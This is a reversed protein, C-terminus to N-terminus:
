LEQSLQKLNERIVESHPYRSQLQRLRHVISARSLANPGNADVEIQLLEMQERQTADLSDIKLKALWNKAAVYNGMEASAHAAGLAFDPTTPDAAHAQEYTRLAAAYDGQSLSIYGRLAPIEAIVPSCKSAEDLADVAEKWRQNQWYFVALDYRYEAFGPDLDVAERLREEALEVKGAAAYVRGVNNLLVTHHVGGRFRTQKLQHICEELHEIAEAYRRKRYLLLAQGNRNFIREYVVNEDPHLGTLIDWADSLFREAEADNRWAPPHHRAYLM